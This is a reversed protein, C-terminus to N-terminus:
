KVHSKHNNYVNRVLICATPGVHNKYINYKKKICITYMNGLITIRLWKLKYEKYNHVNYKKCMYCM